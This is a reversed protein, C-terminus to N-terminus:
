DNSLGRFVNKLNKTLYVVISTSVRETRPAESVAVDNADFVDENKQMQEVPSAWNSAIELMRMLKSSITLPQPSDGDTATELASSMAAETQHADEEMENTDEDQM